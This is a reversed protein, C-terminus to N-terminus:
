WPTWRASTSAWSWRTPPWWARIEGERLRRESRAGSARCIGAATDGCRRAARRGGTAPTKLYTVLVETALRNNAFVLTQLNREIFEMAVRRSEHIYSRRIGLQRNGGRITSFSFKERASSRQAGGTHLSGPSRKPWSAPQRHHGFLLHIAAEFRLFRSPKLRRLLNALHSGYV